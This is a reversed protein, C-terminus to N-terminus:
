YVPVQRCHFSGNEGKGKSFWRAAQEMSEVGAKILLTIQAVVRFSKGPPILHEFGPPPRVHVVDDLIANLFVTSVKMQNITLKLRFALSLLVRLTSIRSVPAHTLDYDIGQSQMYGKVVWRAKYKIIKGKEDQKIKFIWRTDTHKRGM